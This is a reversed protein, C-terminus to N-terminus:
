TSEEITGRPCDQMEPPLVNRTEGPAAEKREVGARKVAMHSGL